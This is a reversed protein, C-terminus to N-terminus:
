NAYALGAMGGMIHLVNYHVAFVHLNYHSTDDSAKEQTTVQLQILKVRSMDCAGSPQFARPQLAFSYSYVGKRARKHKHQFPQIQDFFPAKAVSFLEFGNFMLTAEKLIHKETLPYDFKSLLQSTSEANRQLERVPLTAITDTPQGVRKNVAEGWQPQYARLTYPAYGPTKWNSYNSWDNRLYVDDHQAYWVIYKVPHNLKLDFLYRNSISNQVRYDVREILYQHTTTAFRKQEVDDLFVYTCLLRPHVYLRAPSGDEDTRRFDGSTQNQMNKRQLEITSGVPVFTQISHEARNSDPVVRQGYTSSSPATDVITYLERLPRLRLKIQVEHNQLAVLPLSAGSNRSFWFHLPIYLTRGRISASRLYPNNLPSNPNSSQLEPDDNMAPDLTATPYVGLADPSNAPDYVETVNGTMEQFVRIDVGDDAFMEHWLQIWDGELREILQGGISLEIYDIIRTGLEKIWQFRYGINPKTADSSVSYGSYIDPLDILLFMNSLLDAHRDVTTQLIVGNEFQLDSSGNLEIEIPETAFNSYRKYVMKFHTMQPNGILLEIEAGVAALQLLGGPM